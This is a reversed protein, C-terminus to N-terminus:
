TSAGADLARLDSSSLKPAGAKPALLGVVVVRLPEFGLGRRVDNIAVAGPITEESVVIGDFAADTAAIPPERPDELPGATVVAAPRVM